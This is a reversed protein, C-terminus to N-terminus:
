EKLCGEKPRVFLESIKGGPDLGLSLEVQSRAAGEGCVLGFTAHLEGDGDGPGSTRCGGREALFGALVGRLRDEEKAWAASFFRVFQARDRKRSLALVRAAATDLAPSPRLGASRVFLMGLQAGEAAARALIAGHRCPLRFSARVPSEMAELKPEGCAGHKRALSAGVERMQDLTVKARFSPTLLATYTAEDLAQYNRAFLAVADSLNKAPTEERPRLADSAAITQLAETVLRDTDAYLANSLVVLGFGRDPAFAVSAHFGDIAGSHQVIADFACTQRRHWALGVAEATAGVRGAEVGAGISNLWSSAHSERRSARSLPAGDPDDRPPWADLQFAVWRAMDDLSAYIGGAAESAGLRWAPEPSTSTQARYGLALRGRPVDAADFSATAMGLPRFFADRVFVRYSTGSLRSVVLGLLSVGFNSYLYQTGPERVRAGALAALMEGETVDRDPRTYDFDGLRPLGATHTLVQRLTIPKADRPEYVLAAAEPLYRDLRDDLSLRGQDRLLLLAEATFTKTISGIRYVTERTAPAAAGVDALGRVSSLAVEGDVILAFALSPVKQARLEGEVLADLKPVLASIKAQREPDTFRRPPASDKALRPAGSAAELLRKVDGFRENPIPVSLNYQLIKFTGGERVVVGSGRAPGLNPTALDEDFWAYDGSPAVSVARRTAKFSWARGKAFHPHAYARFAAVDWRETADTGLFVAGEAFCAFYAAEDARAAADHWADLARAVEASSEAGDTPTPAPTRAGACAGLATLLILNSLRHM